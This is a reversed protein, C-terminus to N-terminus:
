ASHSHTFKAVAGSTWRNWELQKLSGTVFRFVFSESPSGKKARPGSAASLRSEGPWAPEGTVARRVQGLM